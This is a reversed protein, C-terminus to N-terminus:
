LLSYTSYSSSSYGRSISIEEKKDRECEYFQNQIEEAERIVKIQEENMTIIAYSSLHM